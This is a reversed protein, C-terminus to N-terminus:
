GQLFIQVRIFYRSSHFETTGGWLVSRNKTLDDHGNKNETPAKKTKNDNEDQTPRRISALVRRLYIWVAQGDWRAASEISEPRSAVCVRVVCAHNTVKATCEREQPCFFESSRVLLLTTKATFFFSTSANKEWAVVYRRWIMYKRAVAAGLIASMNATGRGKCSSRIKGITALKPTVVRTSHWALFTLLFHKLWFHLM